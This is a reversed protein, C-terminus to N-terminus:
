SKLVEGFVYEYTTTTFPVMTQTFCYNPLCKPQDYPLFNDPSNGLLPVLAFVKMNEDHSGTRVQGMLNALQYM